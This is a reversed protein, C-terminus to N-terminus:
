SAIRIIDMPYRQLAEAGDDTIAVLSGLQLGRRRDPSLVHPQLVVTMGPEFTVPQQPRQITAVGPVDLRPPELSLGWGHLLTDMTWMGAGEIVPGVAQRVDEDTAGPRLADISRQCVEHAVDFIARYEPTPDADVVLARHIQGAYGAYATSLETLVVDGARITRLSPEQRPFVIAPDDMPTSGIFLTRQDGGGALGTQAVIGALESDTMGVRAQEALAAVTADTLEAGRRLLDLETPSKIRRIEQLLDTADTWTADPLEAAAALRHEYPMTLRQIGASGVVGIRGSGAGVERLCEALRVGPNWTLHDISRVHAMAQATPLYLPNSILLLPEGDRPVVAYCFLGDRYGTLYACSAAGASPAPGSYVVLAALDREAMGAWVARYRREYEGASVAPYVTDLAETSACCM